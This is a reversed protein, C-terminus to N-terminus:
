TRQGEGLDRLIGVSPDLFENFIGDSGAAGPESIAQWADSGMAFGLWSALAIAAALSGWRAFQQVIRQAIPRPFAIVRGAQEPILATARAIMRDLAPPDAAESAALARAAEVDAAAGPDAALIAEIREREEDELRGEAFAALDLLHDAEERATEAMRSRRWLGRDAPDDMDETRNM